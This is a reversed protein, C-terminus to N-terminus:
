LIYWMPLICPYGQCKTSSWSWHDTDSMHVVTKQLNNNWIKDPTTECFLKKCRYNFFQGLVLIKAMLTLFDCGLSCVRFFDPIGVTSRSKPFHFVTTALIWRGCFPFASENMLIQWNESKWQLFYAFNRDFWFSEV